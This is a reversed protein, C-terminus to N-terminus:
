LNGEADSGYVHINPELVSSFKLFLGSINFKLIVNIYFLLTDVIWTERTIM